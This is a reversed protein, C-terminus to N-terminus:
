LNMSEKLVELQSNMAILETGQIAYSKKMDSRRERLRALKDLDQIDPTRKIILDDHYVKTKELAKDKIKRASRIMMIEYIGKQLKTNAVIAADFTLKKNSRKSFKDLFRLRMYSFDLWQNKQVVYVKAANNENVVIVPGAADSYVYRVDEQMSRLKDLFAEEACGSFDDKLKRELREKLKEDLETCATRSANKRRKKLPKASYCSAMYVAQGDWGAAILRDAIEDLSWNEIKAKGKKGHGVLYILQDEPEINFHDILYVEDSFSYASDLSIGDLTVKNKRQKKGILVVKQGTPFEYDVYPVQM